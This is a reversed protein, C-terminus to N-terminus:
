CSDDQLFYLFLSKLMEYEFAKKVSYGNELEDFLISTQVNIEKTSMKEVKPALEREWKRQYLGIILNTVCVLVVIGIIISVVLMIKLALLKVYNNIIQKCIIILYKNKLDKKYKFRSKQYISM